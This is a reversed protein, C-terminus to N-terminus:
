IQRKIDRNFRQIFDEVRRNLEENSMKSFEESEEKVNEWKKTAEEMEEDAKKQRRQDM